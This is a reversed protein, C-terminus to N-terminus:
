REDRRKNTKQKEIQNRGREGRDIFPQTERGRDNTIQNSREETKNNSGFINNKRNTQPMNSESRDFTSPAIKQRTIERSTVTPRFISISRNDETRERPNVIKTSDQITYRRIPRGIVREVNSTQISNNIVRNNVLTYHTVNTTKRVLTYNYTPSKVYHDIDRDLFFHEDVFCWTHVPIFLDFDFGVFGFVPSWEVDPPLPAWGVFAGGFRWAVWAPGWMTGPVWVWGYDDSLVWRGYHYVAWGWPSDSMFTWGYDSDVWYGDTYPRWSPTVGAPSWVLGYPAVHVWTGYPQLQDYFYNADITVASAGLFAAQSIMFIASISLITLLKHM